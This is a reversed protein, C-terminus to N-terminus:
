ELWISEQSNQNCQGLRTLCEGWRLFIRAERVENFARMEKSTHAFNTSNLKEDLDEWDDFYILHPMWDSNFYDAYDLWFSMSEQSTYDNPDPASSKFPILSKPPLGYIKNWSLESLVGDAAYQNWLEILFRKTPVLLPINSTYHEFLSMSGAHYPILVIAKFESLKQWGYKGLAAKSIISHRSQIPIMRKPSLRRFVKTDSVGVNSLLGQMKKIPTSFKTFRFPPKGSYLFESRTGVWSTDTYKCLSPILKWERQTFLECYKKEYLSNAIAIIKGDDIGTQIFNNLKLWEDLRDSFPAEYRIPAQILIPKKSMRYLLAFAPPYTCIFGDFSELYSGYRTWFADAMTSDLMRWTDSTVIEVPTAKRNFVWNHGSLSWSTVTHGLRNFIYTIDAIVSIHCDLNFFRM